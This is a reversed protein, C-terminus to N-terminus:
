PLLALQEYLRLGSLLISSDFDFAASHLPAAKEGVGLLFFLSPRAQAFFSFDEATMNPQPLIHLTNGLAAQVQAFLAPDNCLPPFGASLHISFSCGTQTGIADGLRQLGAKAQQYITDSFIRLSGELHTHDSVANRAQGSEMRGFGLLRAEGQPPLQAILQYAQQIFAAGAFLADAGEQPRAIHASTGQIDVTVESSRAMIPGPRTYIQGAPVGPWVHCAFIREVKYADLIGSDVIPEAGGTTEEAPQFILLIDWPLSEQRSALAHALALVMATHGDHGCAHMKGPHLSCYPAQSEEQIPLADMDARFAIARGKGNDLFACLAGPAPEIIAYNLPALADKIYALTKPLDADLEPIRHLDQRFRTLMAQM